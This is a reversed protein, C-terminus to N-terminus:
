EDEGKKPPNGTTTITHPDVTVTYTNWCNCTPEIPPKGTGYWITPIWYPAGCKGCHGAIQNSM